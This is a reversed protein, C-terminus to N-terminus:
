SPEPQNVFRLNSTFVVGHDEINHMLRNIKHMLDLATEESLQGRAANSFRQSSEALINLIEQFSSPKQM